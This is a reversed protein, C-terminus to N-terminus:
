VRNRAAIAETEEALLKHEATILDHASGQKKKLAQKARAVKIRALQLAFKKEIVSLNFGPNLKMFEDHSDENEDFPLVGRGRKLDVFPEIRQWLEKNRRIIVVGKFHPSLVIRYDCAIAGGIQCVDWAIPNARSGGTEYDADSQAISSYLGVWSYIDQILEIKQQASLAPINLLTNAGKSLSTWTWGIL